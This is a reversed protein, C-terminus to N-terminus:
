QKKPAEVPKDTGPKAHEVKGTEAKPTAPVTTGTAPATVTATAANSTAANSTAANSTIAAKGDSKVEAVAAQPAAPVVTQKAGTTGTAAPAVGTGQEAKTGSALAPAAILSVAVLTAAFRTFM